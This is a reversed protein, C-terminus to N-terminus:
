RTPLSRLDRGNLWIRFDPRNPYSIPTVWSVDGVPFTEKLHDVIAATWNNLGAELEGLRAGEHTYDMVFPIAEFVQERTLERVSLEAVAHDHAILREYDLSIAVYRGGKKSIHSIRNGIPYAALKGIGSKGIPVRQRARAAEYKPPDRKHSSAITWFEEAESIDMGVGDDWVWLVGDKTAPINVICRSAFADHANAVLEGLARNPQSYLNLALPRIIGYSIRIPAKGVETGITELDRTM